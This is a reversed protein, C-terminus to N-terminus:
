RIEFVLTAAAQFGLEGPLIPTDAAAESLRALPLRVPMEPSSFYADRLTLLSGLQVGAAQALVRAQRLADAVAQQLAQEKIGELDEVTFQISEIRNAGAQVAADAVTGAQEVPRVRIHLRYSARYGTLRPEGGREDTRYVPTLSIGATQIDRAPVGLESLAAVIREVKRANAEHAQRASPAQSEVGLTIQAVDPPATVTARGTVTLTRETSADGDPGAGQALAMATVLSLTAVAAAPIWWRLRLGTM